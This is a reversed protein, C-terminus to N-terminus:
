AFPQDISPSPQSFYKPGQETVYFCDELRIGYEGPLVLMPENSFCMGLEMPRKNGKVLNIWEHGDLGIGHGTRHPCGPLGYGGPFGYDKYVKRPAADVEECPVGLGAKEFGATQAKKALNWMETQRQTPEGFVITRSIDSRYGDVSCGGDMLVIDGEKLEIRKVSGHPNASAEAIQAGIGGSVGLAQHAASSIASFDEKTMGKELLAVSAKYAEITIDSAKQMLAIEASSKRVRLEVTVPDASVYELHPAQKRIGDFLFYRVREEMGIRGSRIGRDKFAQAVRQFPSEYEEWTRIDDGFRILERARDEEFAPCIWVLDGHAPLVAAFMRESKWWELGTFYFLSSGPELYMAELGNEKMLRRAKEMRQIREKDSIPVVDDTMSRLQSLPDSIKQESKNSSCSSDLLAVGASCVGLKIFDRRKVAM